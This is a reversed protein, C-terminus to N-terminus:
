HKFIEFIKNIYVITFSTSFSFYSCFNKMGIAQEQFSQFTTLLRQIIKISLTQDHEAIFFMSSLLNLVHGHIHESLNPTFQLLFKLTRLFQEQISATLLLTQFKEQYKITLASSSFLEKRVIFLIHDIILYCAEWEIILYISSLSESISNLTKNPTRQILSELYIFLNELISKLCATNGEIDLM